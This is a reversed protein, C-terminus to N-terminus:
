RSKVNAHFAATCQPLESKMLLHLNVTHMDSLLLMGKCSGEQLHM